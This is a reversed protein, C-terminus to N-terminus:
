ELFLRADWIGFLSYQFFIAGISVPGDSFRNETSWNGGIDITYWGFRCLMIGLSCFQMLEGLWRSAANTTGSISWVYRVNRGFRDMLCDMTFDGSCDGMSSVTTNREWGISWALCFGWWLYGSIFIERKFILKM